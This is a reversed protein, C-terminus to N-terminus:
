SRTTRLDPVWHCDKYKDGSGCPCPDNRGARDLRRRAAALEEPVDPARPEVEEDELYERVARIAASGPDPGEPATATERVRGLLARLGRVLPPPGPPLRRALEVFAPARRATRSLLDERAEPEAGEPPRSLVELFAEGEERARDVFLRAAEVCIRLLEGPVRGSGECAPCPVPIDFANEEGPETARLPSAFTAGCAECFAPLRPM